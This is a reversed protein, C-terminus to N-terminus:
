PLPPRALLILICTNANFFSHLLISPLLSNKTRYLGALAAGFFTLPILTPAHMHVAGFALGSIWQAQIAPMRYALWPFLTGRFFVEEGIPAIVLAYTLFPLLTETDRAQLFRVMAPQPELPLGLLFFLGSSLLLLFLIPLFLVLLSHLSFRTDSVPHFRFIGWQEAPKKGDLISLLLGITIALGPLLSPFLWATLGLATAAFLLPALSLNLTPAPASSTPLFLLRLRPIGGFCLSAMALTLLLAAYVLAPLPPSWPTMWPTYPFCPGSFFLCLPHIAPNLPAPLHPM